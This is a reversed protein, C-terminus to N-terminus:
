GHAAPAGHGFSEFVHDANKKQAEPMAKYLTEFSATLTKLGAVHAQAFKEYTLLDEVATMDAQSKTSKDAVLKDMTAANGRMAKAVGNWKTEEAPTIQLSAHLTAIRQEVTERTAQPTPTPTPTQSQPMTAQAPPSAPTTSDAAMAILPTALMTAGMLASIAITRSFSPMSLDEIFQIPAYATPRYRASISVIRGNTM